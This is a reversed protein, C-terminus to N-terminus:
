FTEVLADSLKGPLLLTLNDREWFVFATKDGVFTGLLKCVLLALLTEGEWFGFAFDAVISELEDPESFSDETLGGILAGARLLGFLCPSDKRM